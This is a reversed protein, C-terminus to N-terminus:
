VKLFEFYPQTSEQAACICILRGAQASSLVGGVPMPVYRLRINTGPAIKSCVTFWM